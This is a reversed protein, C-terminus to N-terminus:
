IVASYYVMVYIASKNGNINERLNIINQPNENNMYCQFFYNLELM